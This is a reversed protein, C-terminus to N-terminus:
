QYKFGGGNRVCDELKWGAEPTNNQDFGVGTIAALSHGLEHVQTKLIEMPNRLNSATFNRYPTYCSPTSGTYGTVNANAPLQQSPPKGQNYFTIMQASTYASVENVVSITTDNGYM